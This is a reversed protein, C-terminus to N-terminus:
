IVLWNRQAVSWFVVHAVIALALSTISLKASRTPADVPATM